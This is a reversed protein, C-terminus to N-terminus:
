GLVLEFGILWFWYCVVLFSFSLGKRCKGGLFGSQFAFPLLSLKACCTLSSGVAAFPCIDSLNPFAPLHYARMGVHEMPVLIRVLSFIERGAPDCLVGLSCVESFPRQLAVPIGSGLSQLIQPPCCPHTLFFSAKGGAPIM